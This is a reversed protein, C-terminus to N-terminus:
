FEGYGISEYGFRIFEEKFKIIDVVRIRLSGDLRDSYIIVETNIIKVSIIRGEKRFQSPCLYIAEM